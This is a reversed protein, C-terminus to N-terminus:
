RPISTTNPIYAIRKFLSMYKAILVNQCDLKDM